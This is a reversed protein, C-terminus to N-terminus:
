GTPRPDLPSVPRNRTLREAELCQREVRPSCNPSGGSNATIRQRFGGLLRSVSTAYKKGALDWLACDLAAVGIRDFHRFRNKLDEFIKERQEPDQGILGPAMDRIQALAPGTAGFHPAYSGIVGDDSEISVVFKKVELKGGREYIWIARGFDDLQYTYAQLTIREIKSM